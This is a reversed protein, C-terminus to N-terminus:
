RKPRRLPPVTSSLRIADRMNFVYVLSLPIFLKTSTSLDFQWPRDRMMQEDRRARWARKRKKAPSRASTMITSAHKRNSRTSM